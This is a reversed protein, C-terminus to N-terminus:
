QESARGSEDREPTALTPRPANQHRDSIEFRALSILATLVLLGLTCGMGWLGNAWLAMMSRPMCVPTDPCTYELRGAYIGAPICLAALAAAIGFFGAGVNRRKIMIM